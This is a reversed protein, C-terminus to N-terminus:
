RAKSILALFLLSGALYVMLMGAIALHCFFKCPKGTKLGYQLITM